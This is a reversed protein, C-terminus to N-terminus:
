LQLLSAAVGAAKIKAQVEQAEQRSSFPGVRVRVRTVGEIVAAQTYTKIGMRELKQRVERVTDLDTYSGAQVIFRGRDKDADKAHDKAGDKARDGKSPPLVEVEVPAAPSPAAAAAATNSPPSAPEVPPQQLDAAPPASPPQKVAPTPAAPGSGPTAVAGAAGASSLPPAQERNPIDIPIDVPLPRPQTQFVLPFGIIGIGLLVVAGLLRRRAQDRAAQVALAASSGGVGTATGGAASAAETAPGPRRLFKLLAM